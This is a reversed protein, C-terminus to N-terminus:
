RRRHSKRSKDAGTIAQINFTREYAVVTAIPLMPWLLAVVLIWAMSLHLSSIILFAVVIIAQIIFLIVIFFVAYFPLNKTTETYSGRLAEDITSNRDLMFPIALCYLAGTYFVGVGCALIGSYAALSIVIFKWISRIGTFLDSLKIRRRRIQKLATCFLGPLLLFFTITCFYSLLLQVINFANDNNRMLSFMISTISNGDFFSLLLRPHFIAMSIIFPLGQSMILLTSQQTWVWWNSFLLRIVDGVWFWLDGFGPGTREIIRSSEM